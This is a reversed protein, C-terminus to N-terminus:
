EEHGEEAQLRDLFNPLHDGKMPCPQRFSWRQVFRSQFYDFLRSNLNPDNDHGFSLELVAYILSTRSSLHPAERTSGYKFSDIPHAM